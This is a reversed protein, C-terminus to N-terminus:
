EVGVGVVVGGWVVGLRGDGGSQKHVLPCYCVYECLLYWQERGGSRVRGSVCKEDRKVEYRMAERSVDVAGLTCDFCV